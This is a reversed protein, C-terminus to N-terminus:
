CLQTNDGNHIAMENFTTTAYAVVEFARIHPTMDDGFKFAYVNCVHPQLNLLVFVVFVFGCINFVLLDVKFNKFNTM